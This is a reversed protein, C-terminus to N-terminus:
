EKFVVWTWLNMWNNPLTKNLIWMPIWTL